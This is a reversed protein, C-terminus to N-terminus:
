HVSPTDCMQFELTGGEVIQQHSIFIDSYDEGNWKINKVYKNKASLDKALITFDKGNPLHITAKPLQPAGLIYQCSVPDIPYFGMASFMYWASMQGCDDNGCLGDPYPHYFSDFIQRIVEETRWKYGALTYLYAIHHSPENGHAYQGILGTVDLVFGTSETTKQDAFLTDLREKFAEKGGMLDILTPIDHQVHWTYQCANGETFDGGSTSAHSLVYPNFPTRWNGKSDKGRMFGTSADYLNKFYSARKYFFHFDDIYGLKKALQAACYDDYSSELTRSVSENVILDYPYYGYQDYIDWSSNQHNETLSKKIVQFARKTDINPVRKMIAEVIVPVAHNGIMCYNEKGWLQWIPLFGQVEAHQIMSSVMDQVKDPVLLTYMPHACRYTDWLSFTSYYTGSQSQMVSDNANRYMGDVDAINNPQIFLHYMSTYFNKKQEETGEIAICSLYQEWQKCAEQCISLFNWGKLESEMNKSANEVSVTSLAVKVQICQGKKSPFSIVYNTAKDDQHRTPLAVYDSMPVDIKIVGFLQRDVWGHLQQRFTITQKDKVTVDSAVVRTHLSTENGVMGNQFDIAIHASDGQFMYRHFAVHPTATIEVGVRNTSLTVAYYGPTAIESLTDYASYFDERVTTGSFPMLLIDGLDPCGTGNLRNQSFGQILSDGKVYGACYNWDCNGTQPGPQMMGFPVTAGPFTHGTYATGIFPDVYDTPTNMSGSCSLFSGLISVELFYLVKRM